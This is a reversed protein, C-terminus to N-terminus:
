KTCHFRKQLDAEDIRFFIESMEIVLDTGLTQPHQSATDLTRSKSM